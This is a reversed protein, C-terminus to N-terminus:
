QKKLEVNNMAMTKEVGRQGDRINEEVRENQKKLVM